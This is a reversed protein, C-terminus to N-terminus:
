CPFGKCNQSYVANQLFKALDLPPKAEKFEMWQWFVLILHSFIVLIVLFASTTFDHDSRHKKNNIRVFIIHTCRFTSNDFYINNTQILYRVYFSEYWM